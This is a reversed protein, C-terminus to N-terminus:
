PAKFVYKVNEDFIFLNVTGDAHGLFGGRSTGLKDNLALGGSGNAVTGLALRKTGATDLFQVSGGGISGVIWTSTERGQSDFLTLGAGAAANTTWVGRKKGANDRLVFREAEITKKGNPGQGVLLVVGTLCILVGVSAKFRRVQSELVAIRDKLSRIDAM